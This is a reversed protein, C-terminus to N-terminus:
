TKGERQATDWLSRHCQVCSVKRDVFEEHPIEIIDKHCEVCFRKGHVSQGFREPSVHIQRPEGNPFETDFGEIGHCDLCIENDPAEAQDASADGATSTQANAESIGGGPGGAQLFGGALFVFIFINSLRM